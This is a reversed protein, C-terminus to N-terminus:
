GEPIMVHAVETGSWMLWPEDGNEETPLGTSTGTAGPVTVTITLEAREQNRGTLVYEAGGNNVSYAGAKIEADLIEAADDPSTGQGLLQYYRDFMMTMDEHHCQAFFRPLFSFLRCRMHNTGERLVNRQGAAPYHVVVAEGRLSEPLPLVAQEVLEQEQQAVAPAATLAVLLMGLSISARIM